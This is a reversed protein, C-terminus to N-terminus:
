SRETGPRTSQVLQAVRRNYLIFLLIMKICIINQAFDDSWTHLYEIPSFIDYEPLSGSFDCRNNVFINFVLFRDIAVCGEESEEEEILVIKEEEKSLLVM